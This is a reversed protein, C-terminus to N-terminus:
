LETIDKTPTVQISYDGQVDPNLESIYKYAQEGRPCGISSPELFFNVGADEGDTIKDDLITFGGIGSTLKRIYPPSRSPGLEQPNRNRNCNCQHSM